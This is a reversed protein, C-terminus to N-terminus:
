GSDGIPITSYVAGEGCRGSSKVPIEGHRIMRGPVWEAMHPAYIWPPKERCRFSWQKTVYVTQLFKMFSKLVRKCFM